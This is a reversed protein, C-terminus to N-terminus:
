VAERNRTIKLTFRVESTEGAGPAGTNARLIATPQVDIPLKVVEAQMNPAQNLRKAMREIESIAARYDGKFRTVSADVILVEYKSGPLPPDADFAL